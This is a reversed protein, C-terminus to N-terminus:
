VLYIVWPTESLQSCLIQWTLQLLMFNTKFHESLSSVPYSSKFVFFHEKEM